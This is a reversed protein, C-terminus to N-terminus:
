NGSSIGIERIADGIKPMLEPFQDDVIMVGQSGISVGINGGAGFLVYFHDTVKETTIEMTSLDWGFADMLEDLNMTGNHASASTTSFLLAIATLKIFKM